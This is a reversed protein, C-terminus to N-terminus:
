TWTAFAMANGTGADTRYCPVYDLINMELNAESVIGAAVIWNKTESTGSRFMANPESLLTEIDGSKMAKLIRNDFDEDIVFHSVGGSACIAIRKDSEWKNVARGIMQGFEYCRKPKVQNPPFFTNILIPVLPIPEDNLLRRYVFGVAHGIGKPGKPGEPPRKSASIDFEDEMAQEIIKEALEAECPYVQDVAPHTAKMSYALGPAMSMAKEEDYATNIVSPGHYVSFAPQIDETYWERQDDGVVLIVDPSVESILTSLKNLQDQCRNYRKTRVELTNQIRLNESGRLKHLEDYTYFGGRFAHKKNQRDAEARLDWKDPPTSLLPGHATGFGFIIDAM